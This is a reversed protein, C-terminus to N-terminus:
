TMNKNASGLQIIIVALSFTIHQLAPVLHFAYIQDELNKGVDFNGKIKFGAKMPKEKVGVCMVCANETSDKYM